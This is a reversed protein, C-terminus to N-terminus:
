LLISESQAPDFEGTEVKDIIVMMAAIRGYCITESKKDKNQRAAQERVSMVQMQDKLWQIFKEKDM